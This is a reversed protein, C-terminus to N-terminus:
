RATPGTAEAVAHAGDPAPEVKILAGKDHDTLLYFNGDPGQRVERIRQKLETLMAERGGPLGRDNLGVRHLQTGALGGIFLDGKWTPFKDGTYLVMGGPAINPAWFIFPPEM